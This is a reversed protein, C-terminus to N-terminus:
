LTIILTCQLPTLQKTSFNCRQGALLLDVNWGFVLELAQGEGWLMYESLFHSGTEAEKVRGEELM